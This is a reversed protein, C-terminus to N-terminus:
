VFERVNISGTNGTTSIGFIAGTYGFPVEYYAGINLQVAFAIPAAGFPIFDIFISSSSTNCITAGKRSTNAVLLTIGTAETMAITSRAASSSAIGESVLVSLNTLPM